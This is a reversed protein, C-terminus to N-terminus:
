AIYPATILQVSATERRFHHDIGNIMGKLGCSNTMLILTEFWSDPSTRDYKICGVLRKYDYVVLQQSPCMSILKHLFLTVGISSWWTGQLLEANPSIGLHWVFGLVMAMYTYIYIYIYPILWKACKRDGPNNILWKMVLWYGYNGALYSHVYLYSM